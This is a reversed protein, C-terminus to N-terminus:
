FGRGESPYAGLKACGYLDGVYDGTVSKKTFPQPTDIRHAKPWANVDVSFKVSIM